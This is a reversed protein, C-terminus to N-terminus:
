ILANREELRLAFRTISFDLFSNRDMYSFLNIAFVASGPRGGASDIHKVTESCSLFEVLELRLRRGRSRGSNITLTM